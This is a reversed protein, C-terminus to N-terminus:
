QKIIRGSGLRQNNQILEYFYIGPRFDVNEITTISNSNVFQTYLIRGTLDRINLTAIGESPLTGIEIKPKSSFPNPFTLIYVKKDDNNPTNSPLQTVLTNHTSNTVIPPNFDFFISATNQIETNEPLNELHKIRYKVFGHSAAENTTSDPLLINPFLFEVVGSGYMTTEFPHSGAIPRFTTWDLDADLQDELRVTFATDNGTNQFRITYEFEEGFFTYNEEEVGTPRVLKDNPDYACSVISQYNYNKSFELNGTSDDLYTNSIFSLTDGINDTSPMQLSLNIAENYTPPLNEFAWFLTNNDTSDPTPFATVLDTLEDLEFSIYGSSYVTGTNEYNLYFNVQFGCRTFSSTIDPCVEPIQVTPKLGFNLNQFVTDNTNIAYFTSDTTLEWNANPLYTLVYNGGELIFRYSGDGNTFSLFANPSLNVQQNSLGIEFSDRMKNENFDYYCLGSISPLDIYNEMWVIRSDEDSSFLLDIDGDSDFDTTHLSSLDFVEPLIEQFAGFSAFDGLNEHWGLGNKANEFVEVVLDLDGDKDLDAPIARTIVDNIIIKRDSFNGLGDLNEYWSRGVLVDNDGDEDVDLINLPGGTSTNDNPQIVIRGGFNGLGDLHKYWSVRDTFAALCVVDLLGDGDIDAYDMQGVNAMPYTSIIKKSSFNGTGNQNEYWALDYVNTSFIDLDGDLDIDALKIFSLNVLNSDVVIPEEFESIGNISELWVIKNAESATAIIDISGDGNLDGADLFSAGQVQESIVIQESFNGLGDSNEYWAITSDGYSASLIDLDGDQDFDYPIAEAVYLASKKSIRHRGSFEGSDNEEWFISDNNKTGAIIDISGNNDIDATIIIRCDDDYLIPNISNQTSFNGNGDENELWVLGVEAPPSDYLLVAIDLDNDNDLDEIILHYTNLTSSSSSTPLPNILISIEPTNFTGNINPIWSVANEQNYAWYSLVLDLQGDQNIDAFKFDRFLNSTLESQYFFDTEDEFDNGNNKIFGLTKEYSNSTGEIKVHDYTIFDFDGDNDIDLLSFISGSVDSFTFIEEAFLANGDNLLFTVEIDEDPNVASPNKVIVIDKDLDNDIDEIFINPSGNLSLLNPSLFNGLGNNIAISWGSNGNEKFILDPANDGNVDSLYFLSVIFPLLEQPEFIGTGDINKYVILQRSENAPRYTIIDQDGDGDIDTAAIKDPNILDRGIVEKEYGFVPQGFSYSISFLLLLLTFFKM